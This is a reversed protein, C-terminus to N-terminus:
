ELLRLSVISFISNPLRPRPGRRQAGILSTYPRLSAARGENKMPATKVKPVAVAFSIWVIMIVLNKAANKAEAGKTM